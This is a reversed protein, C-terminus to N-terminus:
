TATPEARRRRAGAFPMVLVRFPRAADDVAGPLWVQM